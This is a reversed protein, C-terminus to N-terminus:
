KQSRNQHGIFTHLLHKSANFIRVACQLKRASEIVGVAKNRTSVKTFKTAVVKSMLGYVILYFSFGYLDVFSLKNRNMISNRHNEVFCKSVYINVYHIRVITKVDIPM